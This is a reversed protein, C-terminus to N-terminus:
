TLTANTTNMTSCFDLITWVTSCALYFFTLYITGHIFSSFSRCRQRGDARNFIVYSEAIIAGDTAQFQITHRARAAAVEPARLLDRACRLHQRTRPFRSHKSPVPAPPLPCFIPFARHSSVQRLNSPISIALAKRHPRRALPDTLLVLSPAHNRSGLRLLLM